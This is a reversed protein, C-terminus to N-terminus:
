CHALETLTHYPQSGTPYDYGVAWASQTGPIRGAAYLYNAYLGPNSSPVVSWAAGDWRELLTKGGSGGVAWADNAAVATIASFSGFGATPIASWQFGNWHEAAPQAAYGTGTCCGVAWVDSSSTGSVSYIYKAKSSEGVGFFQTWHRGDWHVFLPHFVQTGARFIGVAWVDNKSIKTVSYLVSYESAVTPNVFSWARGDWHIALAQHVELGDTYEGVAWVDNSAVASVSSVINTYPNCTRCAIMNPSPVLKFAKGDWHETLTKQLFGNAGSFGGVAWVDNTNVGDIASFTDYYPTPNVTSVVTWVGKSFHEALTVQNNYNPAVAYGAAWADGANFAVVSHFQNNSTYPANPSPVYAGACALVPAVSSLCFAAIVLGALFIKVM